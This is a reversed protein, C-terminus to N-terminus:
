FFDEGWSQDATEKPESQRKRTSSTKKSMRKRAKLKSILSKSVRGGKRSKGGM